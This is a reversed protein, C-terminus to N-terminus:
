VGQNQQMIKTNQIFSEFRTEPVGLLEAFKIIAQYKDTPLKIDQIMSMFAPNSRLKNMLLISNAAANATPDIETEIESILNELLKKLRRNM